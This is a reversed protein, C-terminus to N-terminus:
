SGAVLTTLRDYHEWKWKKLERKMWWESVNFMTYSDGDSRMMWGADSDRWGHPPKYVKIWYSNREGIDIIDVITSTDWKRVGHVTWETQMSVHILRDGIQLDKTEVM